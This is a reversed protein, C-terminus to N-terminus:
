SFDLNFTSRLRELLPNKEVMKQYKDAATFVEKGESTEEITINISLKSNKLKEHFYALIKDSEERIRKEQVANHVILPIKFDEGVVPNNASFIQKIILKDDCENETYKKWIESFEEPTFPKDQISDLKKQEPLINEESNNLVKKLSFSKIGSTNGKRPKQEKLETSNLEKSTYEKKLPPADPKNEMGTALDTEGSM